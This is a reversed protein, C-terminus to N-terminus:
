VFVRYLWSRILACKPKLTNLNLAGWDPPHKGGTPGSSCFTIWSFCPVCSLWAGVEWVPCCCAPSPSFMKGKLRISSERQYYEVETVETLSWQIPGSTMQLTQDTWVLAARAGSWLFFCWSPLVGSALYFYYSLSCLSDFRNACTSSPLHMFSLSQAHLGPIPCCRIVKRISGFLVNSLLTLVEGSVESLYLAVAM